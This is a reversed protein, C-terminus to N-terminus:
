KTCHFEGKEWRSRCRELMEPSTLCIEGTQVDIFLQVSYGSAAISGDNKLIYYETDLRAGRNWVLVTRITFEEDLHLPKFYDVHFEVFPARLHAEHFDKYSLGCVRGLAEAGKEFYSAYRGYWVFAMLDIESFHVRSGTEVVVPAPVNEIRTFYHTRKRNRKM